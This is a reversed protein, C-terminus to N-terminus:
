QSLCGYCVGRAQMVESFTYVYSSVYLLPVIVARSAFDNLIKRWGLVEHTQKVAVDALKRANSASM